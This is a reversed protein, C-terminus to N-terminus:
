ADKQTYFHALTTSITRDLTDAYRDRDIQPLGTVLSSLEWDIPLLEPEGDKMTVLINGSNMDHHVIGCEYILRVMKEKFSNLKGDPIPIGTLDQWLKIPIGYYPIQLAKKPTMYPSEIQVFRPLSEFGLVEQSVEYAFLEKALVSDRKPDYAVKYVFGDLPSFFIKFGRTEKIIELTQVVSREQGAQVTLEAPRTKWGDIEGVRGLITEIDGLDIAGPELPFLENLNSEGMFNGVIEIAM